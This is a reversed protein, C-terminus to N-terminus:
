IVFDTGDKHGPVPEHVLEVVIANKIWPWLMCGRQDFFRSSPEVGERYPPILLTDEEVDGSSALQRETAAPQAAENEYRVMPVASSVGPARM